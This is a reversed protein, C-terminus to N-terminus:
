GKRVTMDRPDKLATLAVLARGVATDCVLHVLASSGAGIVWGISMEEFTCLRLKVHAYASTFLILSLLTGRVPALDCRGRMETALWWLWLCGLVAGADSPRGVARHACVPDSGFAPSTDLEAVIMNFLGAVLLGAAMADHQSSRHYIVLFSVIALSLLPVKSAVVLLQNGYTSDYPCKDVFYTELRLVEEYLYFFM